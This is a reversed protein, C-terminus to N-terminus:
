NNIWGFTGSGTVGWVKDIDAENDTYSPLARLDPLGSLNSYTIAGGQNAAGTHAHTQLDLGDVTGTVTIDGTVDLGANADLNGDFDAQGDVEFTGKVYTNGNSYVRFAPQGSAYEVLISAVSTNRYDSIHFLPDTNSNTNDDVIGIKDYLMYAQSGADTYAYFAGSNALVGPLGSSLLNDDVLVKLNNASNYFSINNSAQTIEIRQGSAATRLNGKVTLASGNWDLYKSTDAAGVYFKGTGGDNQIKIPWSTTGADYFGIYNPIIYVGTTSVSESLRTPISNLNTGWTAGVTANDAPKGSGYVDEWPFSDPTSAYTSISDWTTVAFTSATLTGAAIENATITNAKIQAATITGARINEGWLIKYSQVIYLSNSLTDYGAVTWVSDGPQAELSYFSNSDATAGWYVYKKGGSNGAAIEYVRGDFMVTGGSWQIDTDAETWSFGKLIPVTTPYIINNSVTLNYFSYTNGFIKISAEDADDFPTTILRYTGNQFVRQRLQIKVYYVYSSDVDLTFLQSTTIIQQTYTGDIPKLWVIYESGRQYETCDVQIQRQYASDAGSSTESLVVANISNPFLILFLLILFQRM